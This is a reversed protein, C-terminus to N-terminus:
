VVMCWRGSVPPQVCTCHSIMICRGKLLPSLSSNSFTQTESLALGTKLGTFIRFLLQQLHLHSCGLISAFLHPTTHSAINLLRILSSGVLEPLSSHFGDPFVGLLIFKIQVAAKEEGGRNSVGDEGWGRAGYAAVLTM